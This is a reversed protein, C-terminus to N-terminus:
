CCRVANGSRLRLTMVVECHPTHPFLDLPQVFRAEYGLGTLEQADAALTGPNCSVYIITPAGLRALPGIANKHIGSRPPDAIVIDFRRSESMLQALVDEVRGASFACNELGNREANRRADAVADESEEIGLLSKAPRALHLGIGGTGCYLDLIETQSDVQALQSIVQNLREAQLTNTQFFSQASIGFELDGTREVINGEGKITFQAEGAAVQAKGTHLTVIFTTIEPLDELVRQALMDIDDNPYRSVVLNVMSHGSRKGERIVLFRLLGTHAKLDYAPLHAERAHRRVSHVVRNSMESQLYCKELDFIRNYRGRHHLGLHLEDDIGRGFSFEMKNRYFVTEPSGLIEAIQSVDIACLADRVMQAKLQLQSEYELDQWRCGGCTGFHSCPPQRREMGGELLREVRGEAWGRRRRRIVAQVRDGPVAGPLILESGEAAALGDGKATLRDVTVVIRDGRRM